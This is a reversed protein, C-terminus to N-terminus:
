RLIVRDSLRQLAQLGFRADGIAIRRLDLVQEETTEVDAVGFVHLRLVDVDLADVVAPLHIHVVFDALRDDAVEVHHALARRGLVEGVASRISTECYPMALDLSEKPLWAKASGPRSACARDCRLAPAGCLSRRSNRPSANNFRIM